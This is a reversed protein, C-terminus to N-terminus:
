SGMLPFDSSAIPFPINNSKSVHVPKGESDETIAEKGQGKESTIGVSGWETTLGRGWLSLRQKGTDMDRCAGRKIGCGIRRSGAPMKSGPSIELYVCLRHRGAIPQMAGFVPGYNYEVITRLATGLSDLRNRGKDMRKRLIGKAQRSGRVFRFAPYNQRRISPHIGGKGHDGPAPRQSRVTQIGGGHAGKVGVM